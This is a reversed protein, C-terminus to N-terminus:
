EFDPRCVFWDAMIVRVLVFFSFFKWRGSPDAVLSRHSTLLQHLRDQAVRTQRVLSDPACAFAIDNGGNMSDSALLLAVRGHQLAGSIQLNLFHPKRTNRLIFKFILVQALRNARDRAVENKAVAM